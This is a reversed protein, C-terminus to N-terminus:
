DKMEFTLPSGILCGVSSLMLVDVLEDFSGIYTSDRQYITEHDRLTGIYGTPLSPRPVVHQGLGSSCPVAAVCPFLKKITKCYAGYADTYYYYRHVREEGVFSYWMSVCNFHNCTIKTRPILGDYQRTSMKVQPSEYFGKCLAAVVEERTITM